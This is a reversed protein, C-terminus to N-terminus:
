RTAPAKASTGAKTKAKTKAKGRKAAPNVKSEEIRLRPFFFDRASAEIKQGFEDEWKALSSKLDGKLADRHSQAEHLEYSHQGLAKALAGNAAPAKIEVAGLYSMVKQAYSGDWDERPASSDLVVVYDANDSFCEAIELVTDTPDTDGHLPIVLTLEVGLEGLVDFFDAREAFDHFEAFDGTGIDLVLADSEDLKSLLTLMESDEEFDWPIAAPSESFREDADESCNTAVLGTAFGEQEFKEVLVESLTSKGSGPLDNIVLVLKKM